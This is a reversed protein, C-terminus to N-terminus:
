RGRRRRWKPPDATGYAAEVAEPPSTVTGPDNSHEFSVRFEHGAECERVETWGGFGSGVVESPLGCLPCCGLDGQSFPGAGGPRASDSASDSRM